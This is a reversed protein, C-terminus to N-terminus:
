IEEDSDITVVEIPVKNKLPALLKLIETSQIRKAKTPTVQEQFSVSTRQPTMSPCRQPVDAQYEASKKKQPPATKDASKQTNRQQSKLESEDHEDSIDIKEVDEESSLYIVVESVKKPYRITVIKTDEEPASRSAFQGSSKFRFREVYVYNDDEYSMLIRKKILPSQKESKTKSTLKSNTRADSTPKMTRSAQKRSKKPIPTGSTSTQSKTQSTGSASAQSKTQSLTMSRSRRDEQTERSSSSTLQSRRAEQTPTAYPSAASCTFFQDINGRITRMQATESQTQNLHHQFWDLTEQMLPEEFEKEREAQAIEDLIRSIKDM